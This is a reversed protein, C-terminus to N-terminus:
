KHCTLCNFPAKKARHCTICWGMKLSSVQRVLDVNRIEGHCASCQLGAKIHRKHTFYVNAQKPLNHVKVWPIPEKRNWYGHLKKIEPRDVAIVSHCGMCKQVSPVGARPSKEVYIHCFTCQLGVKTVHIRHSFAIPQKPPRGYAYWYLGVGLIIVTLLGFFGAVITPVVIKKM